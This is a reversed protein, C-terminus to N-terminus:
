RRRFLVSGVIFGLAASSSFCLAPHKRGWKQAGALMERAELRRVSYAASELGEAVRTTIKSITKRGPLHGAKEELTAAVGELADAASDRAAEMKGAVTRDAAGGAKRRAATDDECLNDREIVDKM